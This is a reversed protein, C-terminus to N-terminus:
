SQFSYLRFLNTPSVFLERVRGFGASRALEHWVSNTEPFDSAHVHANVADWEEPTYATWHPKQEDWRRLWAERSEGDPSANEYILLQGREGLCRRIDRLTELKAPALLHHLSLGIWVVDVPQVWGNLSSVFDAKQLTYPCHLVRLTKRAIDLAQESLDIGYYHCVATERLADASMIADGCAVDLFRFPAPHEDMLTKHLCAYAGRHFLYDNDVMKRYVLWQELFLEQTPPTDPATGHSLPSSM